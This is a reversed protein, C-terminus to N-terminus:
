ILINEPKMKVKNQEGVTLRAQAGLKLNCVDTEQYNCSRQWMVKKYQLGNAAHFYIDSAPQIFSRM